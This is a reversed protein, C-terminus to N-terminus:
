FFNNNKLMLSIDKKNPRNRYKALQSDQSIKNCQKNKYKILYDPILKACNESLGYMLKYLSKSETTFKEEFIIDGTDIGKDVEHLTIYGFKENDYLSWFATMVGRNEPLKGPHINLFKNSRSLIDPPIIKNFYILLIIDISDDQNIKYLIKEYNNKKNFFPFKLNRSRKKKFIRFKKFAIYQIAIKLLNIIGFSILRKFKSKFGDDGAFSESCYIGNIRIRKDANLSDIILKNFDNLNTTLIFLNLKNKTM